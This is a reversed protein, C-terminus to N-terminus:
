LWTSDIRIPEVWTSDSASSSNLWPIQDLGAGCKRYYVPVRSAIQSFLLWDFGCAAIDLCSPPGLIAARSQCWINWSSGSILCNIDHLIKIKENWTGKGMWHWCERGLSYFQRTNSYFSLDSTRKRAVNWYQGVINCNQYFNLNMFSQYVFGSNAFHFGIFYEPCSSQLKGKELPKKNLCPNEPPPPMQCRGRFNKCGRLNYINQNSRKM